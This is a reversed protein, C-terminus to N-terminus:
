STHRRYEMVEKYHQLFSDHDLEMDKPDHGIELFKEKPITRVKDKDAPTIAARFIM